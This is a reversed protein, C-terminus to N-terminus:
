TNPIINFKKILKEDINKLNKNLYKKMYKKFIKLINKTDIKQMETSYKQM